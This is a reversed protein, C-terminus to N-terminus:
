IKIKFFMISFICFLLFDSLYKLSNDDPMLQKTEGRQEM